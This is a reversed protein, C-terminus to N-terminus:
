GFVLGSEEPQSTIESQAELAFMYCYYFYLLFNDLVSFFRICGHQPWIFLHLLCFFCVCHLPKFYSLLDKRIPYCSLALFLVASFTSFAANLFYWLIVTKLNNHSHAM